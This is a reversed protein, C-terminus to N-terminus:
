KQDAKQLLALGSPSIRYRRAGAEHWVLDRKQLKSLYAGGAYGAGQARLERGYTAHKPWMEHGFTSPAMPGKDRLLTLARLLTPTVAIARMDKM